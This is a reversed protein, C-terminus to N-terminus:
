GYLNDKLARRYIRREREHKERQREGEGTTGIINAIQSLDVEQARWTKGQNEVMSIYEGTVSDIIGEMRGLARNVTKIHRGTLNAIEAIPLPGKSLLVMYVEGAAKGLGRPRFVDESHVLSSVGECSTSLSHLTKDVKLFYRNSYEGAAPTSSGLLGAEILRHTANMATASSTGALEALERCSAGYELRGAKIAIQCHASYVAKDYMGAKGPWPISEALSLAARATQRARSEHASFMVAKNYTLHLWRIASKESKSRLESFKGACPNSMFLSLISDFTHGSNVLSLVLAQEAESRSRYSSQAGHLLAAALRSIGPAAELSHAQPSLLPLIDQTTIKPLQRFDGDLLSYTAAGTITSPPAVVYAGPGHRFEGAGIDGTLIHYAGELDGSFSLYVHRGVDSATQVLPYDGPLYGLGALWAQARDFTGPITKEDCDLVALGGGTRIGINSDHPASAWMRAPNRQQWGIVAPLKTGPKLPLTDFDLAAYDAATLM